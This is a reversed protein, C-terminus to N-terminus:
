NGARKRINNGNVIFMGGKGLTKCRRGSFVNRERRPTQTSFNRKVAIKEDKGELFNVEPLGNVPMLEEDTWVIGDGKKMDIQELSGKGKGKEGV